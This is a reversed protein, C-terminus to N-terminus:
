ESVNFQGYSGDNLQNFKIFYSGEPLDDRSVKIKLVDLIGDNAKEPYYILTKEFGNKNTLTAKYAQDKFNYGYFNFPLEVQGSKEDKQFNYHDFFLLKAERIKELRIISETGISIEGDNISKLYLYNSSELAKADVLDFYVLKSYNKDITKVSQYILEGMDNILALDVNKINDRYNTLRYSLIVTEKSVSIKDSTIDKVIPHNVSVLETTEEVGDNRIIIIQYEKDSKLGFGENYSEIFKVEFEIFPTHSHSGFNGKNWSDVININEDLDIIKFSEIIGINDDLFQGWLYINTQKRQQRGYAKYIEENPLYEHNGVDTLIDALIIEYEKNKDFSLEKFYQQYGDRRIKIYSTSSLKDFSISILGAENSVDKIVDDIYLIAGEIPQNNKDFIKFVVDGSELSDIGKLSKIVDDLNDYSVNNITLSNNIYNNITVSNDYITNYSDNISNDSNDTSISIQSGSVNSINNTNTTSEDVTTTMNINTNIAIKENLVDILVKNSDKMNMSLSDYTIDAMDGRIFNETEYKLKKNDNILKIEKAKELANAWTFDGKSDDYDLARLIFTLYDQAKMPQNSGYQNSSIGNSLGQEYLYGIYDSAWEPVDTFPHKYSGNLVEEEVGLIRVLMVAGQARTFNENLELGQDTGNLIGYDKLIEAKEENSLGFSLSSILFM